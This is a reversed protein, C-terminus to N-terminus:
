VWGGLGALLVLFPGFLLAILLPWDANRLSLRSPRLADANLTGTLSSCVQLLSGSNHYARALLHGLCGATGLAALVSLEYEVNGHFLPNTLLDWLLYVVPTVAALMLSLYSVRGSNTLLKATVKKVVKASVERLDLV